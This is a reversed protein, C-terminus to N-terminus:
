RSHMKKNRVFSIILFSIALFAVIGNLVAIIFYGLFVFKTTGMMLYPQTIAKNLTAAFSIGTYLSVLILLIYIIWRIIKNKIFM